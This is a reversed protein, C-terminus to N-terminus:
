FPTSPEPVNDLYRFLLISLLSFFLAINIDRTNIYLISFIVIFKATYCKLYCECKSNLDGLISRGGISAILASIAVLYKYGVVSPAVNTM